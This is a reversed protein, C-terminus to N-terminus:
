ETISFEIPALKRSKNDPGTAAIDIFAIKDGTELKSLFQIVSIDFPGNVNKHMYVINNGRVVVFFYSSIRFKTAEFGAPLSATLGILERIGSKSLDGGTKGNIKAVPGPIYKANLTYTGLLKVGTKVGKKTIIKTIVALEIEVKGTDTLTLTHMCTDAAVLSGSNTKLVLDKCKYGEAIVTLANPMGTYVTKGWESSVAFKQAFVPATFLTLLLVVLWKKMDM